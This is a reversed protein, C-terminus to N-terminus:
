PPVHNGAPSSTPMLFTQVSVARSDGTMDLVQAWLTLTEFLQQQKLVAVLTREDMGMTTARPGDWINKQSVVPSKPTGGHRAIGIDAFWNWTLFPNWFNILNNIFLRPTWRKVSRSSRTAGPLPLNGANGLVNGAQDVLPYPDQGGHAASLANESGLIAAAICSLHRCTSLMDSNGQYLM